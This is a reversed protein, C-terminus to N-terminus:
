AWEDAKTFFLIKDSEAKGQHVSNSSLALALSLPYPLRYKSYSVKGLTYHGLAHNRSFGAAVFHL